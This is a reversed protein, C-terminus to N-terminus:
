FCKYVLIKTTLFFPPALCSNIFGNNILKDRQLKVQEGIFHNPYVVNVTFYQKLNFM